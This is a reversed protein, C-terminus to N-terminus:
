NKRNVEQIENIMGSKKIQSNIYATRKERFFEIWLDLVIAVIEIRGEKFSRKM